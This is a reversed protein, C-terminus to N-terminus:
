KALNSLRKYEDCFGVERKYVSNYDNPSQPGLGIIPGMLYIGVTSLGQICMHM